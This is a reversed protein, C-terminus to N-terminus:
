RKSYQFRKRAKPQGSKKREVARPDRTLYGEKRLITKIKPDFQVLARAIGYRIAESQGTIGGGTVKVNFDFNSANKVLQYSQTAVLAQKQNGRFYEQVSQGNIKIKGSNNSAVMQIQAIASKRRGTAWIMKKNSSSGKIVAKPQELNTEPEM